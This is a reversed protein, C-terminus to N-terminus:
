NVQVTKKIMKKEDKPLHITLIGDAQKAVIKDVNVLDPLYFSRSFAGFNSEINKFKKGENQIQIKREGSVTLQDKEIDINIQDKPIGPLLLQIEFAEDTEAIDVEPTFAHPADTKFFSEKFFQDVFRDFIIPKYPDTNYKLLKM